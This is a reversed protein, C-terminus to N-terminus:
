AALAYSGTMIYVTWYDVDPKTRLIDGVDKATKMNGAEAIDEMCHGIWDRMCNDTSLQGALYLPTLLTLCQLRQLPSFPVRNEQRAGSLIFQPVAACIQRTIDSIAKSASTAPNSPDGPDHRRVIDNMTLRMIWIGNRLQTVFHNPYVDYYRDFLHPDYGVSFVRRPNWSPPLTIELSVLRGDLERAKEAAEASSAFRGNQLDAKLNVVNVMLATFDWKADNVFPDLDRRLALLAEPVPITAAGCSTTLTVALRSALQCAIYSSFNKNGRAKVLSMAGQIHSMWSASSQPDRNAMKEYLDLLLVSQFTEDSAAVAPNRLALGLRQIAVVYNENALHVLRPNNIQFSM